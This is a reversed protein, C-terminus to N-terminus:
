NAVVGTLECEFKSKRKPNRKAIVREYSVTEGPILYARSGASSSLRKIEEWYVSAQIEKGGHKVGGVSGTGCPSNWWFVKGTSVRVVKRGTIKFIKSDLSKWETPSTWVKGDPDGGFELTPDCTVFLNGGQSIVAVAFAIPRKVERHYDLSLLRISNRYPDTRYRNGNGVPIIQIEQYGFWDKCLTVPKDRKEQDVLFPINNKNGTIELRLCSISGGSKIRGDKPDVSLKDGNVRIALDMSPCVESFNLDM